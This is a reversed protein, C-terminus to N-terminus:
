TICKTGEVDVALGRGSYGYTRTRGVRAIAGGLAFVILLVVAGAVTVVSGVLLLAVLVLSSDESRRERELRENM